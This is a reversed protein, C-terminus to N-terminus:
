SFNTCLHANTLVSSMVACSMRAVVFAGSAGLTSRLKPAFFGYWLQPLYFEVVVINKSAISYLQRAADQRKDLLQAARNCSAAGRVHPMCQVPRRAQALVEVM